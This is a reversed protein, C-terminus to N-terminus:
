ELELLLRGRKDTASPEYRLAYTYNGSSLLSEGIHDIPQCVAEEGNIVAEAYTTSYASNVQYYNTAAGPAVDGYWVTQPGAFRLTVDKMEVTSRNAVRIMLVNKKKEEKQCGCLCAALVLVYLLTRNRM